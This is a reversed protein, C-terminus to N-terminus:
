GTTELAGSRTRGDEKAQWYRGSEVDLCTLWGDGYAWTDICVAHGISLPTGDRQPTHGCIMVKGSEHAAPFNFPEWYLMLDPQDILSINPFANAHVFFHTRTEYYARCKWDLFEWHSAPVIALEEVRGTPSYSKMTAGGGCAIWNDYDRTSERARRMMVEHNGLLPILSGQADRAILWDLVQRSDPGSDVYDGLAVVQDDAGIPVFRELTTLATYCGHIDGIALIRM